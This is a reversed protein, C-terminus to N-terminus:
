ADKRMLGIGTRKGRKRVILPTGGVEAAFDTFARNGIDDSILIGGAVLHPWATQYEEIQSEYTHDSDHLFVDIPAVAAVLGPLRQRSPGVTLTWRYRLHDPIVQGVFEDPDVVLPPLDLSHLRGHGNAHMAGLTVATTYGRAVGTEVVVAPRVIRTVAAVIELLEPKADWIGATEDAAAEPPHMGTVADDYVSREVELVAMVAEAPTLLRVGLEDLSFSM